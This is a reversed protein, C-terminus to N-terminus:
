RGSAHWSSDTKIFVLCQNPLFPLTKIEEVEDFGLYNNIRNFLHKADKPMVVSTGGGWNPNWEDEGLIPVVMTVVKRINDTHPVISGGTIPM